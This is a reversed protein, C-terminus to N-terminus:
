FSLLIENRDAPIRLSIGRERNAFITADLDLTEWPIIRERRDVYVLLSSATLLFREAELREGDTLVFVAPVPPKVDKPDAAGPIEIIHAVAPPRERESPGRIVVPPAEASALEPGTEEPWYGDDPLFYPSFYGNDHRHRHGSALGNSFGHGAASFSHFGAGGRQARVPPALVFAAVLALLVARVM